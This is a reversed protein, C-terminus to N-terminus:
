GNPVRRDQSFRCQRLKSVEKALGTLDGFEVEAVAAGGFEDDM